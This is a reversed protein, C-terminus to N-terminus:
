WFKMVLENKMTKAKVASLQSSVLRIRCIGFWFNVNPSGSKAEM